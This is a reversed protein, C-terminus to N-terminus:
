LQQRSHYVVRVNTKLAATSVHCRCGGGGNFFACNKMLFYLDAVLDGTKTNVASQQEEEVAPRHMLAWLVSRLACKPLLELQVESGSIPVLDELSPALKVAAQM